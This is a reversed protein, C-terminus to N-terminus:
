VNTSDFMSSPCSLGTLKYICSNHADVLLGCQLSCHRHKICSLVVLFSPHMSRCADVICGSLSRFYGHVGPESRWWKCCKKELRLLSLAAKRVEKCCFTELQGETDVQLCPCPMNM